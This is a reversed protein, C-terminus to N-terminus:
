MVPGSRLGASGPQAWQSMGNGGAAPSARYVGNPRPVTTRGHYRQGSSAKLFRSAAFGLVIGGAAVAWPQRRGFDEADALLANSDKERLYGGVKEAYQALQDAAKAPGEKGEERLSEGVSRLDSAQQNIQTAAQSSRQDLQERLKDQVQGAAQHAKEQAQEAVETAKAQAESAVGGQTDSAAGSGTGATFSQDTHM